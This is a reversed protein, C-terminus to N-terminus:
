KFFKFVLRVYYKTTKEGLKLMQISVSRTLISEKEIPLFLQM